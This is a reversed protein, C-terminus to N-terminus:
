FQSELFPSVRSDLTPKAIVTKPTAMKLGDRGFQKGQSENEAAAALELTDGYITCGLEVIVIRRRFRFVRFRRNKTLTIGKGADFVGSM